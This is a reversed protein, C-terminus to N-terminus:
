FVDQSKWKNLSRLYEKRKMSITSQTSMENHDNDEQRQISQDERHSILLCMFKSHNLSVIESILDRRREDGEM